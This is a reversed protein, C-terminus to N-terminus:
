VMSKQELDKVLGAARAESSEGGQTASMAELYRFRAQIFNFLMVMLAHTSFTHTM